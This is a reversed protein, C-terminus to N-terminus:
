CDLISNSNRSDEISIKKIHYIKGKEGDGNESLCTRLINALHKGAMYINGEKDIRMQLDEFTIKM